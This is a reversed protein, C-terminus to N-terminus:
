INNKEGVIDHNNKIIIRKQKNKNGEKKTKQNGKLYDRVIHNKEWKIHILLLNNLMRMNKFM